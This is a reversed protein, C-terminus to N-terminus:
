GAIKRRRRRPQKMLLLGMGLLIAASPEPIATLTFELLSGDIAFSGAFGGGNTYGFDTGVFDTTDFVVLLYTQGIQWDADLFTFNYEGVGGKNLDGVLELIDSFGDSLSILMGADSNWLLSDADFCDVPALFSGSELTISGDVFGDGGFTAGAAVTVNGTISLDVILTGANVSTPGTYTNDNALTLTGNGTKIVSGNGTISGNQTASGSDIFLTTPDNPASTDYNATDEEANTYTITVQGFAVPAFLAVCLLILTARHPPNKM